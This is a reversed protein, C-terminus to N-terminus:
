EFEAEDDPKQIEQAVLARWADIQEDSASLSLMVDNVLGTKTKLEPFTLLLMALDRWDTGSKPQGRRKHYSIVKRAILEPPSLVLVDAVRKASPLADVPRLDVLHRNGSKQIQFL